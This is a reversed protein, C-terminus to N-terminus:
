GAEILSAPNQRVLAVRARCPAGDELDLNEAGQLTVAIGIRSMPVVGPATGLWGPLPGPQIGSVAGDVRQREGTPSTVEVEVQMGPRVQSAASAPTFLVAQLPEEEGELILAVRAGAPIYDGPAHGLGVVQGARPSIIWERAQYRAESQLLTLQADSLLSQTGAAGITRSDLLAVRERLAQIERQLQPVTQRAIRQGAEVEDGVSVLVEQLLGSDSSLVEHRQGPLLLLGDFTATRQISGLWLWVAAAVILLGIGALIGREHPATVRLLSDLQQRRKRNAATEQLTNNLNLRSERM